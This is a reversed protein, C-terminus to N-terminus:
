NIVLFAAVLELAKEILLISSVTLTGLMILRLRKYKNGLEDIISHCGDFVDGMSDNLTSMYGGLNESLTNSLKRLDKEVDDKRLIINILEEKSLKELSTSVNASENITQNDEVTEAAKKTVKKVNKVM